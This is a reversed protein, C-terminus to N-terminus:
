DRSEGHVDVIDHPTPEKTKPDFSRNYHQEFFLLPDVAAYVGCTNCYLVPRHEVYLDELSTIQRGTM